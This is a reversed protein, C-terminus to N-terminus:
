KESRLRKVEEVIKPLVEGAKGIIKVDFIPDAITPEANVIIMKAGAKKAIYPLEAAPYVVLSSGVVMFADCHKAEEIAEFLTRQPLPEGFLVVRPKVYYSGCKRCRPIEGKNFDEVFESWDYTEHCDLCDLKDMSGHLELVRRSGARQHLMDINQTIVAKVIGMRELEAIAYHAPNPEAFLKDKMEMSFEWFARPNRKFGSISAVEEPDYKRWLGDEGRFTPIGSEASIGAGTFVVAHKSKALIEAAKRIEDEM